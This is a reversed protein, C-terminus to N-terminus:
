LYKKFFAWVEESANIDENGSGFYFWALPNDWWNFKIGPWVHRGDEIRYMWVEEELDDTWHREFFIDYDAGSEKSTMQKVSKNTLQYREAFFDITSPLDYYAGWGGENNLDGEFLSIKDATGHIEFIPVPSSLECSDKLGKMLVGAVPAVAKFLDSSTCALLYSMDGGNSMGTAFAKKRKLNFEQSISRVLERIFSVDNIPSDDNFEYGVNFFTNGNSDITGQPYVAIFGEREAISNMGTYAAIGEASGTYGHIVFVIPFDETLNEPVHIIYEREVGEHIVMRQDSVLLSSHFLSLLIILRILM